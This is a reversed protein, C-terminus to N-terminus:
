SCRSPSSHAHYVGESSRLSHELFSIMDDNRRAAEEPAEHEEEPVAVLVHDSTYSTARTVSTSQHRNQVVALSDPLREGSTRRAVYEEFQTDREHSYYSPTQQLAKLVVPEDKASRMSGISLRRPGVASHKNHKNDMSSTRTGLRSSYSSFDQDEGDSFGYAKVNAPRVYDDLVSLRRYALVAYIALAIATIFLVLDLSMGILSQSEKRQAYVVADLALIASACTLKIIHTFLMTWPTLAEATFKVIEVLTCTAAVFSMVINTAEWVFEMTPTEDTSERENRHKVGDGLRWSFLGM